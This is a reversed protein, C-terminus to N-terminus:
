GRGSLLEQYIKEIQKTHIEVNFLEVIRSYAQEVLRKRLEIDRDIEVAATALANLDPYSVLLGSQGDVIIEALAGANFAVVPVKAAAAEIITRGFPEASATHILLDLCPYVKAMDVQHGHFTLKSGLQHKEVLLDLERKYDPDQISGIVVFRYKAQANILNAVEIFHELCKSRHIRNISAVITQDSNIGLVQLLDEDREQESFKEVNVGNHVVYARRELEPSLKAISKTFHSNYVFADARDLWARKYDSSPGRVHILTKVGALRAAVLFPDRYVHFQFHALQIRNAKFFFYARVVSLLFPFPNWKSIARQRLISISAMDPQLQDILDGKQHSLLHQQYKEKPLHQTIGLLSYGPGGTLDGKVLIHAIRIKSSTM